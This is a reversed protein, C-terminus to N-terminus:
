AKLVISGSGNSPQSPRRKVLPPFGSRQQFHGCRRMRVARASLGGSWQLLPSESTLAMFRAM